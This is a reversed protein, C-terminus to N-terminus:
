CNPPSPTWALSRTPQRWLLAAPRCHWRRGAVQEILSIGHFRIDLGPLRRQLAPLDYAAEAAHRPHLLTIHARQPRASMGLLARRLAADGEDGAVLPMLVTGDDIVRPGAFRLRLEFPPLQRLRQRIAAWRSLEDDRSLQRRM